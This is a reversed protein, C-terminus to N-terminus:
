RGQENKVKVEKYCSINVFPIFNPVGYKAMAELAVKEQLECQRQEEEFDRILIIKRKVM